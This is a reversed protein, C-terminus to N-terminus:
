WSYENSPHIRKFDTWRKRFDTWRKPMQLTAHSQIGDYVSEEPIWQYTGAQCFLWCTCILVFVSLFRVM